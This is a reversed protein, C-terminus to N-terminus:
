AAPPTTKPKRAKAFHPKLDDYIARAGPVNLTAARQISNYFAMCTVLAEGGVALRTDSSPVRVSDCLQLVTTLAVALQLDCTLENVDAYPPVFQPNATMYGLCKQVFPLHGDAMKPLSSREEATLNILFPLKTKIINIADTIAQLDAASLQAHINQYPM